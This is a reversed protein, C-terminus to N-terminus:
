RPSRPSRLEHLHGARLPTTAWRAVFTREPLSCTVRLRHPTELFLVDLELSTPGTWGGAV